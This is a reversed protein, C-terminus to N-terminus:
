LSRVTSILILKVLVMRTPGSVGFTQPGPTGKTSSQLESWVRRGGPCQERIAPHM